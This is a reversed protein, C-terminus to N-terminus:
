TERGTRATTPSGAAVSLSVGIRERSPQVTALTATTNVPPVILMRWSGTAPPLTGDRDPASM